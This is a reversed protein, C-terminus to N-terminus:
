MLASRRRSAERPGARSQDDDVLRMGADARMLAPLLTELQQFSKRVIALPMQHEESRRRVTTVLRCELPQQAQEILFKGGAREVAVGPAGPQGAVEDLTAADVDSCPLPALVAHERAM